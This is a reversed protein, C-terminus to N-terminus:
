RRRRIGVLGGMALVGLAGPTPVRLGIVAEYEAGTVDQLDVEVYLWGDEALDLGPGIVGASANFDTVTYDANGDNDLDVMDGTSLLASALTLNAADGFFLTEGLDTTWVFAAQNNENMSLANVSTTLIRGDVNDGERLAINGNYAIFEDTSTSGDTDGSFMYNGMNNVTVADFNDWNDGSGNSSAERAVLSGNVAIFDDNTTSGTELILTAIHNAGNDSFDYDFGVGTTGIAWGGVDQGTKYIVSISGPDSPDTARMLMRGQTSGGLTDTYGGVWYATGDPGMTPRSNFTSFLTTNPIMDDDALLKGASTYVADGGNFSPSYIFDGADSIGMTTEGGTLVDPAADDSNFIFGNDFWIGRSGDTFGVVLGVQGNGNTFPSNITDVTRSGYVQGERVVLTADILDASALGALAAVVGASLAGCSRIKM